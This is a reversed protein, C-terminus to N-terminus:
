IQPMSSGSSKAYARAESLMISKINCIYLFVSVIGIRSTQWTTFNNGVGELGLILGWKKCKKEMNNKSIYLAPTLLIEPDVALLANWDIKLEIFTLLDYIFLVIWQNFNTSFTALLFSAPHPIHSVM